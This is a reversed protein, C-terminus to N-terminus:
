IRPFLTIRELLISTKMACLKENDGKFWSHIVSISDFHDYFFTM